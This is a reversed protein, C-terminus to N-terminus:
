WAPRPAPTKRRWGPWRCRHDAPRVGPGHRTGSCCCRASSGPWTAAHGRGVQALWAMGAIVPLMGALMLRTGGFRPMLRPAARSVGFVTLTMPLFAVGPLLPSFGLIDQVFQTLFFFMGFM